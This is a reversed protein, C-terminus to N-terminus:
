RPPWHCMAMVGSGNVRAGSVSGPHVAGPSVRTKIKQQGRAKAQRRKRTKRQKGQLTRIRGSAM